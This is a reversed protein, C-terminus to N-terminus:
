NQTNFGLSQTHETLVRPGESNSTELRRSPEKACDHRVHIEEMRNEERGPTVQKLEVFVVNM